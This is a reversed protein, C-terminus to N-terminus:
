GKKDCEEFKNCVTRNARIDTASSSSTFWLGCKFYTKSYRFNYFHKCQKCKKGQMEGYTEQMTKYKRGVTRPAPDPMGIGCLHGHSPIYEKCCVACIIIGSRDANLREQM